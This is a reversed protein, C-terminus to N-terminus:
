NAPAPPPTAPAAGGAGGRRGGRQPMAQYVTFQAPTLIVKLKDSAETTIATRKTARDAQAVTTDARLATQKTIMDEFVAKVKPIQEDSLKNTTGLATEFATLRADATMAGGRGGAAPAAGGAAQAFLATNGAFLGGVVLAAVLISKTLKM